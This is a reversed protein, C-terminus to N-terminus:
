GDCAAQLEAAGGLRTDVHEPDVDGSLAALLDHAVQVAPATARDRDAGAGPREMDLPSPEHRDIRVPRGLAREARAGLEREDDRLTDVDRWHDPARDPRVVHELLERAGSAAGDRCADFQVAPPANAGRG